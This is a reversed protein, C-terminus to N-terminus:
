PRDKETAATGLAQRLRRRGRFLLTKVTGATVGLVSAIEGVRLEQRYYLLVATREGSPLAAVARWIVRDNEDDILETLPDLADTAGMRAPEIETGERRDRTARAVLWNQALRAAITSLWPYFPRSHDYAGLHTFARVFADQAIEEAGAPDRTMMLALGYLRRQYLEVIRGFADTDGGRVARVAAHVAARDPDRPAPPCDQGINEIHPDM